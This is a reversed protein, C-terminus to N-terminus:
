ARRPGRRVKPEIRALFAETELFIGLTEAIEPGKMKWIEAKLAPWDDDPLYNRAVDYLEQKSARPM